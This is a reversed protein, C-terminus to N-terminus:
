DCNGYEGKEPLGMIGLALIMFGPVYIGELWINLFILAIGLVILIVPSFMVMLCLIEIHKYRDKQIDDM